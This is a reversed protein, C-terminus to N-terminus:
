FQHNLRQQLRAPSSGHHDGVSNPQTPAPHKPVFGQFDVGEHNWSHSERLCPLSEKAHFSRRTHLIELGIVLETGRAIAPNTLSTLSWACSGLGLDAHFVWVAKWKERASKM